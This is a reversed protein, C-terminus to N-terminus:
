RGFPCSIKGLACLPNGHEDKLLLRMSGPATGVHTYLKNKIAEVTM